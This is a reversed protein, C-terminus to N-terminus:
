KWIMQYAAVEGLSSRYFSICIPYRMGHLGYSRNLRRMGGTLYFGSFDIHLVECGKSHGGFEVQLRSNTSNVCVVNLRLTFLAIGCWRLAKAEPLAGLGRRVASRQM